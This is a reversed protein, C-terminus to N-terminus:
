FEIRYSINPIMIGEYKTDIKGTKINYFHNSFEQSKSANLIQVSWLSSYHPKNKRYSITFSFVPIDDFKEEFALNGGTEGYIVKKNQISLTKNVPEIRNGGLYNFRANVGLIKNKNKGRNWEKGAVVNYVQNKNYRTNRKIGDAATYKSDFLSATLSYYFGKKLFRELTFDVDINRGSGDSCLIENFFLANDNNLTSIYSTPSVPVHNLKQFYPEVSFRLNNSLKASYSFVFHSSKMFKLDKNPYNGESEIFYVQLQEVRSHLGYALALSHNRNLDYKLGIRPELSCNKNLLFYQSNIGLNLTLQPALNIKSQTFVQLLGSNGKQHAFQTPPTGESLSQQINLNYRLYQYNFGTKNSHNKGFRASINSQIAFRYLQNEAQSQPHPQLGFDLRQENHSLGNGSASITSSLFTSSTLSIKHSFGTAFMNLTTQSNDRDTDSIWNTSDVALM